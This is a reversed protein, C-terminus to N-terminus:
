HLFTTRTSAPLVLNEKERKREKIPARSSSSLLSPFLMLFPCHFLNLSPHIRPGDREEEVEEELARAISELSSFPSNSDM